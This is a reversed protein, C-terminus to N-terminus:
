LGKVAVLSLSFGFCEPSKKKSFVFYLYLQKFEYEGQSWQVGLTAVKRGQM